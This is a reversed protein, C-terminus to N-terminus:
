KNYEQSFTGIYQAVQIAAQGTGGAASHILVTEGPQLRALDKFAMWATAYNVPVAAAVSLSVEDPVHAVARWNIRVFSKYTDFPFSAVRDGVKFADAPVASGIRTVMGACECGVTPNQIRGLAILLDRFNLGVSKVEVEVENPDMPKVNRERDEVFHLTNLLGPSGVILRLPVGGPEVWKRQVIQDTLVRKYIEENLVTTEILRPIHLIGDKEKYETDVVEDSSASDLLRESVQVINSIQQDNLLGDRSAKPAPQLALYTFAAGDVESNLVRSLGDVLRYSPPASSAEKESGTGREYAVWVSKTTPNSTLLKQLSAFLQPDINYWVPQDFELLFIQLSDGEFKPDLADEVSSVRTRVISQSKDM